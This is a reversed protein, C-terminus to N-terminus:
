SQATFIQVQFFSALLGIIPVVAGFVSWKQGQKRCYGIRDFRVSINGCLIDKTHTDAFLPLPFSFIFSFLSRHSHWWPEYTASQSLCPVSCLVGLCSLLMAGFHGSSCFPVIRM